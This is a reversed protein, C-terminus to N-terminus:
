GEVAQRRGVLAMVGRGLTGYDSRRITTLIHMMAWVHYGSFGFFATQVRTFQLSYCLAFAGIILVNIIAIERWFVHRWQPNKRLKYDYGLYWNIGHMMVIIGLLVRIDLISRGPMMLLWM